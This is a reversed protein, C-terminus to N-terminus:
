GARRARLDGVDGVAVPRDPRAAEDLDAERLVLEVVRLEEEPSRAGSQTHEVHRHRDSQPRRPHRLLPGVQAVPQAEQPHHDPGPQPSPRRVGHAAEGTASSKSPRGVGVPWGAREVEIARQAVRQRTREAIRPDRDRELDPEPPRTRSGHRVGRRVARQVRRPGHDDRDHRDERREGAQHDEGRGRREVLRERDGRQQAQPHQEDEHEGPADGHPHEEARAGHGPRPRHDERPRESDPVSPLRAM